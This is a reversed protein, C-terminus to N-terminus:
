TPGQSALEIIDSLSWFQIYAHQKMQTQRSKRLLHSFEDSISSATSSILECVWAAIGRRLVPDSGLVSPIDRNSDSVLARMSAM